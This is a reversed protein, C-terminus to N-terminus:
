RRAFHSVELWGTAVLLVVINFPIPLCFKKRNIVSVIKLL